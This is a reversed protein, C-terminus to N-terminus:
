QAKLGVGEVFRQGWQHTNHRIFRNAVQSKKSKLISTPRQKHPQRHQPVFKNQFYPQSQRIQTDDGPFLRMMEAATEGRLSEMQEDRQMSIGTVVGHENQDSEVESGL